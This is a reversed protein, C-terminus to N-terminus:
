TCEDVGVREKRVSDHEAANDENDVHGVTVERLGFDACVDM